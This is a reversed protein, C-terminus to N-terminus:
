RKAEFLLQVIEAEVLKVLHYDFGADKLHRRDEDQGMRDSRGDAHGKGFAEGSNQLLSRIRQAQTFIDRITRRLRQNEETATEVPQMYHLDTRRADTALGLETNSGKAGEIGYANRRADHRHCVITAM